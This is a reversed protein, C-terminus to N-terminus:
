KLVMKWDNYFKVMEPGKRNFEYWGNNNSGSNGCKSNEKKERQWNCNIIVWYQAYNWENWSRVQIEGDDSSM